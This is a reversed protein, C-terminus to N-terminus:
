VSRLRCYLYDLLNGALRGLGRAAHLPAAPIVAPGRIRYRKELWDRGPFLYGSLDLIRVPRFVSEAQLGFIKRTLRGSSSRGELYLMQRRYLEKRLLRGRGARSIPFSVGDPLSGYVAAVAALCDSVERELNWRRAKEAIKEWDLKEGAPSIARRLDLIWLLWRGRLLLSPFEREELLEPLFPCHKVLHLALTLIRDAPGLVPIKKGEFDAERHGSFLEPYEVLSLTYPHDLAWHLEVPIGTEPHLYPLHLHRREFYRDPFTGPASKLGAERLIAKARPLADRRVLLDLDSFPRLFPRPYVTLGLAPGRLIILEVGAASFRGALGAALDLASRIGTVQRFYDDEFSKRVEEPIASLLGARDLGDFVAGVLRNARALRLIKRWDTGDVAPAAEEGIEGTLWIILREERGM